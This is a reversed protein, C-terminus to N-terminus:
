ADTHLKYHMTQLAIKWKHDRAPQRCLCGAPEVVPNWALAQGLPQGTLGPTSVMESPFGDPDHLCSCMSQYDSDSPRCALERIPFGDRRPGLAISYDVGFPVGLNSCTKCDPRFTARVSQEDRSDVTLLERSWRRLAKDPYAYSNASAVSPAPADGAFPARRHSCPDMRCGACPMASPELAEVVASPGLGFLALQSHEPALMGSELLELGAAGPWAPQAALWDLLLRQEALPWGDYGPSEHSLAALGTPEVQDCITKRARLLLQETAAAAAANLFFAEDPRQEGWLRQIEASVSPGASCAVAVASRAQGLRLKEALARSTFQTGNALRIRDGETTVGVPGSVFSWPCGHENVWALAREVGAQAADSLPEGPPTCLHRNWEVVPVTIPAANM